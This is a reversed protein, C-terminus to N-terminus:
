TTSLLLRAKTRRNAPGACGRSQFGRPGATGGRSKLSFPPRSAPTRVAVGAQTLVGTALALNPLWFQEFTGIYRSFVFVHTDGAAFHLDPGGQASAAEELPRGRGSKGRRRHRRVRRICPGEGLRHVEGVGHRSFERGKHALGTDFHLALEIELLVPEVQEPPVDDLMGAGMQVRGDM